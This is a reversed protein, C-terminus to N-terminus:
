TQVWSTWVETIILVTQISVQLFTVGSENVYVVSVLTFQGIPVNSAFLSKTMHIEIWITTIVLWAAWIWDNSYNFIHETLENQM